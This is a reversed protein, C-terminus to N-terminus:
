SLTRSSWNKSAGVTYSFINSHYKFEKTAKYSIGNPSRMAQKNDILKRRESGYSEIKGANKCPILIPNFTKPKGKSLVFMYEFCQEYRNHTLPIYNIKQYIMTDHLNLGIEKFYLAQKFSTGSETGNSTSDGVVWVMVANPKMVRYLEKAIGEFDFEYGGYARLNDYPPSTVICDISNHPLEQLLDLCNGCMIYNM